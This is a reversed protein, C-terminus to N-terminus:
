FGKPATKSRINRKKRLMIYLRNLWRKTCLEHEWVRMAHYGQTRLSRRIRADRQRNQSIKQLWFRKRKTPTRRKCTPCAHWFCGDVFVALRREPFYFDPRGLIGPPHKIWGKIGEHIFVGEIIGETSKNETSRVKAMLASREAKTLPDRM